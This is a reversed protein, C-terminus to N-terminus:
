STHDLNTLINTLTSYFYTCTTGIMPARYTNSTGSNKDFGSKFKLSHYYQEDMYLDAPPHANERIAKRATREIELLQAFPIGLSNLSIHNKSESVYLLQDEYYENNGQAIVAYTSLGLTAVYVSSIERALHIFVEPNYSYEVNSKFYGVTWNSKLLLSDAFSIFLIDAHKASLEDIKTRLEILRGRTIKGSMLADKVGIADVLGFVSYIRIYLNELWPSRVFIRPREDCQRSGVCSVFHERPLTISIEHFRDVVNAYWSLEISNENIKRAAVCSVYGVYQYEDGDFFRSMVKEYEDLFCEDVLFLDANLPVEEFKYNDFCKHEFLAESRLPALTLSAHENRVRFRRLRRLLHVM